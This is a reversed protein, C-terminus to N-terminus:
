VPSMGATQFVRLDLLSFLHKRLRRPLSPTEVREIAARYRDPNARIQMMARRTLLDAAHNKRRPTWTWVLRTFGRALQRAKRYLPRTSPANVAALGTMQDIVSRADGIVEVQEREFGMDLLAQLGEILALYEAINSSAEERRVFGGHGRAVLRGDEYILWGYCMVGSSVGGSMRPDLKSNSTDPCDGTLCRFLGDFRLTIM